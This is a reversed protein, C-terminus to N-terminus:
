KSYVTNETGVNPADAVPFGGLPACTGRTRWAGCHVGAANGCRCDGIQWCRWAMSGRDKDAALQEMYREAIGIDVVDKAWLEVKDGYDPMGALKAATGM